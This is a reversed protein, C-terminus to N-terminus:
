KKNSMEDALEEFYADLFRQRHNAIKKATETLLVGSIKQPKFIFEHYASHPEGPQKVGSELFQESPRSFVPQQAQFAYALTRAVGIAGIVDLKDADFLVKAEVSEPIEEKRFRHARICHQVARIRDEAWNIKLLVERAFEASRIHHDKRNGKGPHSGSADHLLAATLLLEMDAGEQPGIRECLHYVREIHDFGHVADYDPYWCRADKLTIV